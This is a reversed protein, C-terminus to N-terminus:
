ITLKRARAVVPWEEVVQRDRIVHVTAHLTVTPCVHWPIGYIATGVPFESARATELVLHEENHGAVKAQPLDPFIVRPHPMESAVSKHGLDLCLRDATPRSVVRALLVAASLFDLDPLNAAYGADWLVSTGPSCEVDADQAYFPFTPTGGIVVRPVPWEHGLLEERFDRVSKAVAHAAAGREGPDRQHLHGDYAHLGGATLGPLSVIARYLDV